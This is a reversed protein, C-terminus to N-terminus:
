FITCTPLLKEEFATWRNHDSKSKDGFKATWQLPDAKLMQKTKKLSIYPMSRFVGSGANDGCANADVKFLQLDRLKSTTKKYECLQVVLNGGKEGGTGTEGDVQATLCYEQGAVPVYDPTPSVMKTRILYEHPVTLTYFLETKARTQGETPLEVKYPRQLWFQNASAVTENAQMPPDLRTKMCEKMMVKVGNNPVQRNMMKDMEEPNSAERTLCIDDADFRACTALYKFKYMTGCVRCKPFKYVEGPSCQKDCDSGTTTQSPKPNYGEGCKACRWIFKGTFSNRTKKDEYCQVCGKAIKTCSGLCGAGAYGPYCKCDGDCDCTGHGNCECLKKKCRKCYPKPNYGKNFDCKTCSYKTCAMCNPTHTDCKTSCDEGGFGDDCECKGSNVDCKHGSCNNPCFKVCKNSDKDPCKFYKPSDCKLCVDTM